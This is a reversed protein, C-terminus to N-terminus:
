SAYLKGTALIFYIRWLINFQIQLIDSSHFSMSNFIYCYNGDVFFFPVDM